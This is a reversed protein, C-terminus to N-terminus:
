VEDLDLGEDVIVVISKLKEELSSQVFVIKSFYLIVM